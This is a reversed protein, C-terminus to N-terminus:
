RTTRSGAGVNPVNAVGSTTLSLPGEIDMGICAESPPM